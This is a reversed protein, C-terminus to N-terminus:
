VLVGSSSAVLEAIKDPRFGSWQDNDTVVVPAQQYGLSLVHELAKPDASIDVSEYVIGEKDLSKYTANCQVCAPKTYVTVKPQM